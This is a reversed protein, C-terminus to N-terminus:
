TTAGGALQAESLKATEVGAAALQTIRDRSLVEAHDAVNLYHAKFKFSLQRGTEPLRNTLLARLLGNDETVVFGPAFRNAEGALYHSVLFYTDVWTIGCTPLSDYIKLSLRASEPGALSEKLTMFWSMANVTDRRTARVIEETERQAAITSEPNLFLIEVEVGRAVAGKLKEEM